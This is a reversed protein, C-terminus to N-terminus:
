MYQELTKILINLEKVKENNGEIKYVDIMETIIFELIETATGPKYYKDDPKINNQQLYQSIENEEFVSGKNNPNIYFLINNEGFDRDKYALIMNGFLPVPEIPLELIKSIHYYLVALSTSNGKKSQLVNNFFYNKSANPSQHNTNFKETKFLVYNIVRVKELATLNNSIEIWVKRSLTNIIQETETINLDPFQHKNIILYGYILDPNSSLLWNELELKINNFQIKHIIDEVKTQTETNNITEWYKELYPIVKIGEEIIKNSVSKYVASDPDELLTILSKLLNDMIGNKVNLTFM